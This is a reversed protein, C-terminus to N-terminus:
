SNFLRKTSRSIIWANVESLLWGVASNAADENNIKFRKPFAPDFYKSKESSKNYIATRSLGTLKVLENIRIIRECLHERHGELRAINYPDVVSKERYGHRSEDEESISKLDSTEPPRRQRTPARSNAQM